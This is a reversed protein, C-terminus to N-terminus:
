YFRLDADFRDTGVIDVSRDGGVNNNGPVPTGSGSLTRSTSLGDQVSYRVRDGHQWVVFQRATRLDSKPQPTIIMIHRDKGLVMEYGAEVQPIRINCSWSGGPYLSYSAKGDESTEDTNELNLVSWKVGTTNRIYRIVTVPM